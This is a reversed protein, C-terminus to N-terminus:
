HAVHASPTFTSGYGTFEGRRRREKIAEAMASGKPQWGHVLHAFHCPKDQYAFHDDFDLHLGLSRAEAETQVSSSQNKQVPGM